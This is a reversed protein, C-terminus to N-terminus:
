AWSMSPSFARKPRISRCARWPGNSTRRITGNRRAPISCCSRCARRTSINTCPPRRRPASRATCRWCKRRSSWGGRRRSANRRATPTTWAHLVKGQTRQHRGKREADPFLGRRGPRARRLALRSRFAARDPRAQNRHRQRGSRIEEGGGLRLARADRIRAVTALATAGFERRTQKNKMTTEGKHSGQDSMGADTAIARCTARLAAM